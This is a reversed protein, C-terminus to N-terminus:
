GQKELHACLEIADAALRLSEARAEASAASRYQHFKGYNASIKNQAAVEDRLWAVIEAREEEASRAIESTDTM